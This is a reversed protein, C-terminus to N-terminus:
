TKQETVSNTVVDLGMMIDVKSERENQTIGRNRRSSVSVDIWPHPLTPGEVESVRSLVPDRTLNERWGVVSESISRWNFNNIGFLNSGETDQGKRSLFAIDTFIRSCRLFMRFSEMFANFARGNAIMNIATAMFESNKDAVESVYSQHFMPIRIQLRRFM